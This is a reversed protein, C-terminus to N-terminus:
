RMMGMTVVSPWAAPVAAATAQLAFTPTFSILTLFYDGGTITIYQESRNIDKIKDKYYSEWDVDSTDPAHICDRWKTIDELIIVGPKPMAGNMMMTTTM